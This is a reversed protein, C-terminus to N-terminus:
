AREMNYYYQRASPQRKKFNAGHAILPKPFTSFTYMHICISVYQPGLDLGQGLVPSPGLHALTGPGKRWKQALTQGKAGWIYGYTDMHICIHVYSDM